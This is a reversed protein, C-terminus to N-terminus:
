KDGRFNCEPCYLVVDNMSTDAHIEKYYASKKSCKPCDYLKPPTPKYKPGLGLCALFDDAKDKGVLKRFEDFGDADFQKKYQEYLKNFKM